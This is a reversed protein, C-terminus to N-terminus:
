GAKEVQWFELDVPTNRGFISVSVRLKGRDHDIEEVIGTQGDFPGDNVKV